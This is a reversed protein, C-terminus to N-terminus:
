CTVISFVYARGGLQKATDDTQYIGDARVFVALELAGINVRQQVGAADHSDDSQPNHCPVRM